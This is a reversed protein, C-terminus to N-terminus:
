IYQMDVTMNNSPILNGYKIAMALAGPTYFFSEESDSHQITGDHERSFIARMGEEVTISDDDDDDSNTSLSCDSIDWWEALDSPVNPNCVFYCWLVRAVWMSFTEDSPFVSPLNILYLKSTGGELLLNMFYINPDVLSFTTAADSTKSEKAMTEIWKLRLSCENQFQKITLYNDSMSVVEEDLDVSDIAKDIVFIVYEIVQFPSMSKIAVADLGPPSPVEFDSQFLDDTGLVDRMQKCWAKTVKRATKRAKKAAKKIVDDNERNRKNSQTSM